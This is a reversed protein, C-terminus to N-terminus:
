FTSEIEGAWRFVGGIDYVRKYGKEVMYNVAVRSMNGMTCHILILQEKNPFKEELHKEFDGLFFNIAGKIHSREYEYKTRVDVVICDKEKMLDMADNNNITSGNELM